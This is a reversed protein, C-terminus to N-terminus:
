HQQRIHLGCRFHQVPQLDASGGAPLGVLLLATAGKSSLCSSQGEIFPALPLLSLAASLSGGDVDFDCVIRRCHSLVQPVLRVRRPGQGAGHHAVLRWGATFHLLGPLHQQCHSAVHAAPTHAPHMHGSRSQCSCTGSTVSWDAWLQSSRVFCGAQDQEGLCWQQMVPFAGGHVRHRAHHLGRRCVRGPVAGCQVGQLPILVIGTLHSCRADNCLDLWCRAARRSAHARSSCWTPRGAAAVASQSHSQSSCSRM